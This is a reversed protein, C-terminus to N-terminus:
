IKGGNSFPRSAKLADESMWADVPTGGVSARILGIPVHYKKYHKQLIVTATFQLVTMPDAM